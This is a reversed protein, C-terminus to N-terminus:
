LALPKTHQPRPRHLARNMDARLIVSNLWTLAKWCCNGFAVNGGKSQSANKTWRAALACVLSPLSFLFQVARRSVLFSKFLARLKVHSCPLRKEKTVSTGLTPQKCQEPPSSCSSGLAGSSICRVMFGEAPILGGMTPCWSSTVQTFQIYGLYPICM